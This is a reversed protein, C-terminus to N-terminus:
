CGGRFSMLKVFWRNCSRLGERELKEDLQFDFRRVLQPISKSMALSSINKGICILSGMEFALEYKEIKAGRGQAEFELWRVSRRRRPRLNLYQSTRGLRKDRGHIRSTHFPGCHHDRSTSRHAATPSLHGSHIRLTGKIVTELYPLEQAKKFTM